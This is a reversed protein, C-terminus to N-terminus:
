EVHSAMQIKNQPANIIEFFLRCARGIKSQHTANRGRSGTAAYDVCVNASPPMRRVSRRKVTRSAILPEFGEYTGGALAGQLFNEDRVTLWATSPLKKYTTLSIRTWDTWDASFPPRDLLARLRVRNLRAGQEQDDNLASADGM